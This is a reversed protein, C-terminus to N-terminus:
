SVDSAGGDCGSRRIVPPLYCSTQIVSVVIHTFSLRACQVLTLILLSHLLSHRYSFGPYPFSFVLAFHQQQTASSTRVGKSQRVLSSEQCIWWSDRNPLRRANLATKLYMPRVKELSPGTTKYRALKNRLFRSGVELMTKVLLFMHGM